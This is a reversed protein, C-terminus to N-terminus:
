EKTILETKLELNDAILEVIKENYESGLKIYDM